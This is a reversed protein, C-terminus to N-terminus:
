WAALLLELLSGGLTALLQLRSFPNTYQPLMQAGSTKDFFQTSFGTTRRRSKDLCACLCKLSTCRIFRIIFLM